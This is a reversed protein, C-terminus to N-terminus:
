PEGGCSARPSRAASLSRTYNIELYPSDSVAAFPASFELPSQGLAFIVVNTVGDWNADADPAGAATPDLGFGAAWADYGSRISSSTIPMASQATVAYDPGEEGTFVHTHVVARERLPALVGLREDRRYAAFAAADPFTVVHIEKLVDSAEEGAVVVTREIRGGHEAMVAAAHWEFARFAELECRRVTLIAVLTMRTVM